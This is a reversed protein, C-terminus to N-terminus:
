GPRRTQSLIIYIRSSRLIMELLGDDGECDEGREQHYPAFFSYRDEDTITGYYHQPCCFRAERSILGPCPWPHGSKRLLSSIGARKESGSGNRKSGVSAVSSVTCSGSEIRKAQNTVVPVRCTCELSVPRLGQTEDVRNRKHLYLMISSGIVRLPGKALIPVLTKFYFPKFVIDHNSRRSMGCKTESIGLIILGSWRSSNCNALPSTPGRDSATYM